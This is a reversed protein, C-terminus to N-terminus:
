RLASVTRAVVAGVLLAITLTRLARGGPTLAHWALMALWSLFAVIVLLCPVAIVAPAALGALTLALVVTPVFLRPLRSLRTLARQSRSPPSPM